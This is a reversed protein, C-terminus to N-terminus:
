STLINTLIDVFKYVEAYTNYFPVPAIRMVKGRTDCVVGHNELKGHIQSVDKRFVVSLQCGREQPNQPTLIDLHDKLRVALLFELYGTLLEQKKLIKDMGVEEFMELAALNLAALFPPPNALRFCDVGPAPDLVDRMEFRTEQKNSWWGELHSPVNGHHKTHLFAGGIAGAGSNLYKYSCWVAFDAGWAHLDLQVNGVAHALDWGIPINLDNAHKTISEMDLKQGTYYQIGPLMVLALNDKEKTIEQIIDNNRFLNEGSRPKVIIIRSEDVGLVRMLSKAAYRDSPFAHDEIMIKNKNGKPKYFALMLLHLNVTLGNMITVESPDSAGVIKTLLPKCPQDAYAAPIRGSTHHYIGRKGWMDMAEQMYRDAKKPKLGLSNGLLYICNQSQDGVSERPLTELTPFVFENRYKRLEDCGDMHEAFDLTSVDLAAKYSINELKKIHSM